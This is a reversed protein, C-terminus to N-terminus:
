DTENILDLFLEVVQPDFHIGSEKRIHKLADKRSWALRYPRDSTLADFVDVVAFIRAELPIEEGKLGRPYGSGDWKEHHCYPINLTPKLYDISALMDYAYQPHHRMIEWERDNLPGPKLLITDSVGMKGIDHLISGRYIHILQDETFGMKRALELTVATVRESHGETEQDRLELASAWGKITEDYASALAAGAMQLEEFLRSRHISLGAMEAISSLVKLEEATVERPLALAVVIVGIRKENSHLPVLVGGWGAPTNAFAKKSLGPDRVFEPCKYPQDLLYTSGVLGEGPIISFSNFATFWGRVAALNLETGDRNELWIAGAETDLATLTQELLSEIMADFSELYRLSSSISYLVELESVRRILEAEAQEKERQYRRSELTHRVAQGLRKSRDKLIYDSAGAHLASIAAEEGISGSVLILPIDHGSENLLELARLGSFNPLSWDALIFDPKDELAKLFDEETQVRQWDPKFGEEELRMVMLAADDPYDEVILLNLPQSM